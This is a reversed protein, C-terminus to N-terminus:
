CFKRFVTLISRTKSFFIPRTMPDFLDYLYGAIAYSILTSWAAGISQYKEIFFYNLAINILAGTFTRWFVRTQMGEVVLQKGSVTGLFVFITAWIHINLIEAAKLYEKGYLFEILWSSIFTTAAALVLSLWIMIGYLKELRHKYKLKNATYLKIVSPFISTCIAIPLFYFSESLTTAASYYGVETANVMHKIMIQDIKMYVTVALGSLLLPWSDKLLKKGINLKPVWHSISNSKGSYTIALLSALIFSDFVYLWAYYILPADICIFALKLVSSLALQVLQAKVIYKSKVIAQFHFDVVNLSHFIPAIAIVAILMSANTHEQYTLSIIISCLLSLSGTLKLIFTTGLIQNKKGPQLVLEKVAISDLGLTAIPIFLAVYSLAYSLNGFNEPGLNRAVLIGVSLGAIARVLREFVIWSTNSLIIIHEKSSFPGTM